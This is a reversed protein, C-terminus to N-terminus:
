LRMGLSAAARRQYDAYRDPFRWAPVGGRVAGAEISGYSERWSEPLPRQGADGAM